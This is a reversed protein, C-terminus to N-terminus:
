AFLPTTDTYLRISTVLSTENRDSIAVVPVTVIKQDHRKYFIDGYILYAYGSVRTSVRFKADRCENDSINLSKLQIAYCL